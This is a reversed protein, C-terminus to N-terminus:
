GLLLSILLVLVHWAVSVAVYAVALFALSLLSYVVFAFLGFGVVGLLAIFGWPWFASDPPENTGSYTRLPEGYSVNRGEKRPTSEYGM